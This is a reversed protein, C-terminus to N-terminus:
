VARRTREMEWEMIRKAYKHLDTLWTIFRYGEQTVAAVDLSDLVMLQESADHDRHAALKNRMEGFKLDNDARFQGLRKHLTKRDSLLEDPASWTDLIGRLKGGLLAQLDEAAEYMILVLFRAYLRGRSSENDSEIDAILIRLDHNFLVSFQLINLLEEEMQMGADRFKARETTLRAFTDRFTSDDPFSAAM